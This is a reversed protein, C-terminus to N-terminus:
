NKLDEEESKSSLVSIKDSQDLVYGIVDPNLEYLTEIMEKSFPIEIENGEEDETVLGEWDIITKKAKKIIFSIPDEVINEKRPESKKKGIAPPIDWKTVECDKYISHIESPTLPIVKFSGLVPNKDSEPENNNELVKIWTPKRSTRLKLAM